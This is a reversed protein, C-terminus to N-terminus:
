DPFRYLHIPHAIRLSYWNRKVLHPRSAFRHHPSQCLFKAVGVHRDVQHLQNSQLLIPGELALEKFLEDALMRCISLEYDSVM